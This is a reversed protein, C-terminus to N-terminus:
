PHPFLELQSILVDANQGMTDHFKLIEAPASILTRQVLIPNFMGGLTILSDNVRASVRASMYKGPKLLSPEYGASQISEYSNEEIGCDQPNRIELEMVSVILKVNERKFEVKRTATRGLVSRQGKPMYHEKPHSPTLIPTNM